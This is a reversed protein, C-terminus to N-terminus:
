RLYEGVAVALEEVAHTKFSEFDGRPVPEGLRAM